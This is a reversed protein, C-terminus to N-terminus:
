IRRGYLSRISTGKIAVLYTEGHCSPCKVRKQEGLHKKMFTANPHLQRIDIGCKKCKLVVTPNFLMRSRGKPILV